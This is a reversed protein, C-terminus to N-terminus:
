DAYCTPTTHRPSSSSTIQNDSLDCCQVSGHYHSILEGPHLSLYVGGEEGLRDSGGEKAQVQGFICLSLSSFSLM